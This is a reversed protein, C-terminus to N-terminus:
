KFPPKDNPNGVRGRALELDSVTNINFAAEPPVPVLRARTVHALNHLSFKRASILREVEPLFITPLVLPFGPRNGAAAFVPRKGNFRELLSRLLKPAVFPMDCALFLVARRRTTRLASYIGGLPGCRVILDKRLVRVPFGLPAANARAHGLLTRRGLRLRAKDRGMRTSLGGALICIEVESEM